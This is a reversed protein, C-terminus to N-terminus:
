PPHETAGANGASGDDRSLEWLEVYKSRLELLQLKALQQSLELDRCSSLSAIAPKPAMLDCVVGIM